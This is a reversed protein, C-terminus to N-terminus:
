FCDFRAARRPLIQTTPTDPQTSPTAVSIPSEFRLNSSKLHVSCVVLSLLHFNDLFRTYLSLPPTPFPPVRSFPHANLTKVPAPSLRPVPTTQKRAGTVSPQRASHCQSLPACYSIGAWRSPRLGSHVLIRAVPSAGAKAPCSTSTQRNNGAYEM